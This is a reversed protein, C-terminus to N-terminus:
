AAAKKNKHWRSKYWRSTIKQWTRHWANKGQRSTGIWLVIQHVGKVWWTMDPMKQKLHGIDMDTSPEKWPPLRGNWRPVTPLYQIRKKIM